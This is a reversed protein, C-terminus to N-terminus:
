SMYVHPQLQEIKQSALCVLLVSIVSVTAIMNSLTKFVKLQKAAM